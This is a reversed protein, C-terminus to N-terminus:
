PGPSVFLESPCPSFRGYTALPHSESDHKDLIRMLSAFYAALSYPVTGRGGGGVGRWGYAAEM